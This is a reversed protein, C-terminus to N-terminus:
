QRSTSDRWSCRGTVDLPRHEVGVFQEYWGGVQRPGHLVIGCHLHRPALGGDVHDRGRGAQIQVLLGLVGGAVARSPRISDQMAASVAPRRSSIRSASRAPPRCGFSSSDQDAKTLPSSRSAQRHHRHGAAASQGIAAQGDQALGLQERAVGAGQPALPAGALVRFAM